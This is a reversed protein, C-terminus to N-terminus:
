CATQQREKAEAKQYPRSPSTDAISHFNIHPFVQRIYRNKRSGPLHIHGEAAANGLLMASTLDIQIKLPKVM